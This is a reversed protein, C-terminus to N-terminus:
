DLEYKRSLDKQIEQVKGFDPRPFLYQLAFEYPQGLQTKVSLWKEVSEFTKRSIEAKVEEGITEWVQRKLSEAETIAKPIGAEIIRIQRTLVDFMEQGDAYRKEAEQLTATCAELDSSKAENLIVRDFFRQRNLRAECVEKQLVPLGERCNVLKSSLEVQKKKLDDIHGKLEKLKAKSENVM